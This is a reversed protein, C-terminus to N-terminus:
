GREWAKWQRTKKIATHLFHLPFAQYIKDHSHRWHRSLYVSSPPTTGSGFFHVEQAPQVKIYCAHLTFTWARSKAENEHRGNKGNTQAGLLICSRSVPSFHPLCQDCSHHWTSTLHVHPPLPGVAWVVCQIMWKLVRGTRLTILLVRTKVLLFSAKLNLVYM